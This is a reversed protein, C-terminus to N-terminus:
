CCTFGILERDGTRCRKHEHDCATDCRHHDVVKEHDGDKGQCKCTERKEKRSIRDRGIVLVDAFFHFGYNSDQFFDWSSFSGIDLYDGAELVIQDSTAGWGEGALPYEGNRYYNLNEDFGFIGGQFYSSGPSGTFTVDSWSGGYINEHAYIVLQLATTEYTGDGDEDYKYEGLGYEDLDIAALEDFSVPVYVLPAGNQDDIYKGDYSVSIYVNNTGTAFATAPLLGLVMVCALIMSLIKKTLRM